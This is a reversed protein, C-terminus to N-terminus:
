GKYIHNCHLPHDSHYFHPSFSAAILLRNLSSPFCIATHPLFNQPQPLHSLFELLRVTTTFAQCIHAMLEAGSLERLQGWLSAPAAACLHHLGWQHEKSRVPHPGSHGTGQLDLRWFSSILRPSATNLILPKLGPNLGTVIWFSELSFFCQKASNKM